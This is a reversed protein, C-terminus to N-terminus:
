LFRGPLDAKCPGVTQRALPETGWQWRRAFSHVGGGTRGYRSGRRSAGSIRARVFEARVHVEPGSHSHLKLEATGAATCKYHRGRAVTRARRRANRRADTRGRLPGTGRAKAGQVRAGVAATRYLSPPEARGRPPRQGCVIGSESAPRSACGPRYRPGMSTLRERSASWVPIMM